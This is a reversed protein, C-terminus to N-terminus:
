TAPISAKGGTRYGHGHQEMLPEIGLQYSRQLDTSRAPLGGSSGPELIQTRDHRELKWM